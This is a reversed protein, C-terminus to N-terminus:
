FVDTVDFIRILRPELDRGGGDQTEICPQWKKVIKDIKVLSLSFMPVEIYFVNTVNFICLQWFEFHRVGGDEIESITQCKKVIQSILALNQYPHQSKSVSYM